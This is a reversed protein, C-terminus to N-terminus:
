GGPLRLMGETGELVQSMVGPYIKVFMKSADPVANGPITLTQSVNGALRDQAVQDFQKGNPVVEIVRKVADNLKSGYAKITLPHHGIKNARIRFKVATVEGAKIDLSREHGAGDVLEFWPEKVLELRVTQSSKMYNYVAVPFSVEDSQTLNLPLDLEVFFDQFVKLPVTTGGLLGKRSSASATLRWTTISDAFTVPLTAVGQDDTVLSPQWLMTEPFYERIRLPAGGGEALQKTEEPAAGGETKAAMPAPPPFAGGPAAGDKAAAFDVAAGEQQPFAGGFGGRRRFQNRNFGLMLNQRDGFRDQEADELWWMQAFRWKQLNGLEVDDKTGLKGDPGVSVLKHFQFQPQNQPNDAPKDTKILRIPQGWADDLWRAVGPQTKRVREILDDPFVWKNDKFFTNRHQNTYQVIQWYANQMRQHTVAGALHEATFDKELAALSELTLKGGMPDALFDENWGFQKISKELIDPVFEWKGTKEDKVMFTNNHGYNYLAMGLNAVKQEIQQRRQIEPRVEWRAPVKPQIATLLAEAVQQKEPPLVEERVLDDINERPKYVVQAQPKLLEEQLTFYVKELGPQMEQLAYVAEDVVIVGLAAATPNGKADTVQFRISGEQGPRFVDKDAKIDIKLDSPAHVYVVRSDRIIEGHALMQYAHVELSGFTGAPLDLKYEARGDKVDFWKSLMTQGGRIVDLYVTPLGGSTRIDIQMADGGKYIAKDLRLLVNEGFPESSLTAVTTAQSGQADKAQAFLDVVSQQTHIQQVNGGLMEVKRPGWDGQRFHEKKPTFKFEALGASNTKVSAVPEGKREKGLWFQVDCVAPSGDPYIAAAFVRNEMEPILKGGEPILSVNVPQDSVPYTKTITESHDATDTVKVELKVIADGKQLPQGVFYDPLKIEFDVHGNDDTKGKWTAFEKFAVDFTSAKVEVEGGAVPKGFFYNVQLDAKVTEKPLYFTKDAKLENKFRPLVYPKVTVTKEAREKGILARVNYGGQNVETALQFDASAIGYASTKMERKFVKNGKSDEVEFTIAQEAVPSLDFSELSLARLHIVQGPQYMPKDTVLLVRPATKVQVDQTLTEEGLTSKTKVELKYNGEPLAPVQLQINAKGEKDAKGTYLEHVKEGAHLKIEIVADPLPITETYSRVGHVECRMAAPSNAYFEKGASVATEHAKALLIDKLATEVKHAGYTCRVKVDDSVKLPKLEFRQSIGEDTKVMREAQDIVEDKGNVLEVRLKVDTERKEDPLNVVLLLKDTTQFGALDKAELQAGQAQQSSPWFLLTGAAIAVLGAVLGIPVWPFNWRSSNAMAAEWLFTGRTNTGCVGQARFGM